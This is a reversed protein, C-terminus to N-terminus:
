DDWDVEDEDGKLVRRLTFKEPLLEAVANLDGRCVAAFFKPNHKAIEKM